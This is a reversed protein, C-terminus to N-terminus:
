MPGKDGCSPVNKPTASFINSLSGHVSLPHDELKTPQTHPLCGRVM